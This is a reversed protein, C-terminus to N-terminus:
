LRWILLILFYEEILQKELTLLFDSPRCALAKQAGNIRALVRKKKAFLNGFVNYNWHKAKSVFDLIAGQLDRSATWVEQVINPFGLHLLWMTHFCFPKNQIPPTFRFLKVLVPYHDSFTRPLHIM